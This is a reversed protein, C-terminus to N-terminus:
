GCVPEEVVRYYVSSDADFHSRKLLIAQDFNLNGELIHRLEDGDMLLIARERRADEAERRGHETFGAISVFLGSVGVADLKPVFLRIATQDSPDREWKCEVRYKESSVRVFGDIQDGQGKGGRPIRYPGRAEGCTIQALRCVLEELAYGRRQADPDAEIHLFEQRLDRINQMMQISKPASKRTKEKRPRAEQAQMRSDLDAKVARWWRFRRDAFNSARQLLRQAEQFRSPEGKLLLLRAMNTLAIPDRPGLRVATEYLQEALPVDDMMNLAFTGLRTWVASSDLGMVLGLTSLGSGAPDLLATQATTVIDTWAGKKSFRGLDLLVASGAQAGETIGRLFALAVVARATVYGAALAGETLEQSRLLHTRVFGSPYKGYWLQTAAEAYTPSERFLRRTNWTSSILGPFVECTRLPQFTMRYFRALALRAAELKEDRAACVLHEEAQQLYDAYEQDTLQHRALYWEAMGLELVASADEHDDEVARQACRTAEQLDGHQRESSSALLALHRLVASKRALLVSRQPSPTMTVIAHSCRDRSARLATQISDLPAESYTDQAYDVALSADAALVDVHALKQAAAQVVRLAQHWWDTREAPSGGEWALDRCIETHLVVCEPDIAQEAADRVMARAQMLLTRTRDATPEKHAAVLLAKVGDVDVPELATRPM